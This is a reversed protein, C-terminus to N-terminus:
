FFDFQLSNVQCDKQKKEQGKLELPLIGPNEVSSVVSNNIKGSLFPSDHTYHTLILRIKM